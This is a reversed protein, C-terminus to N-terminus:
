LDLLTYVVVDNLIKFSLVAQIDNSKYFLIYVMFYIFQSIELHLPHKDYNDYM